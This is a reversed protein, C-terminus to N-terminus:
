ANDNWYSIVFLICADHLYTLNCIDYAATEIYYNFCSITSIKHFVCAFTKSELSVDHLFWSGAQRKKQSATYKRCAITISNQFRTQTRLSQDLPFCLRQAVRISVIGATSLFRVPVPIRPALVPCTLDSERWLTSCCPRTRRVALTRGLSLTCTSSLANRRVRRRLIELSVIAVCSDRKYSWLVWM